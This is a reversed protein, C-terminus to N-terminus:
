RRQAHALGFCGPVNHPAKVLMAGDDLTTPTNCCARRIVRESGSSTRSCRYNRTMLASRWSATPSKRGLWFLSTTM